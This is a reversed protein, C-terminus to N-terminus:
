PLRGTVTPDKDPTLGGSGPEPVPNSQTSGAALLVLLSSLTSFFVKRM